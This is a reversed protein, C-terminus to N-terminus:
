DVLYVLDVLDVLYVLDVLLGWNYKQLDEILEVFVQTSTHAAGGLDALPVMDQLDEMDKERMMDQLHVMGKAMDKLLDLAVSASARGTGQPTCM